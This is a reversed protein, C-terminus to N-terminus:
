NRSRNTAFIEPKDRHMRLSVRRAGEILLVKNLLNFFISDFYHYKLDLTKRVSAGFLYLLHQMKIVLQYFVVRIHLKFLNSIITSLRAHFSPLPNIKIVVHARRGISPSHLANWLLWLVHPWIIQYVSSIKPTLMKCGGWQVAPNSDLPTSIFPSAKLTYYAKYGGQFGHINTKGFTISM